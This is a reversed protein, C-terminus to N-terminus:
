DNKKELNDAFSRLNLEEMHMSTLVGEYYPNTEAQATLMVLKSRRSISDAATRLAAVAGRAEKDM